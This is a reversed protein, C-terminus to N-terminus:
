SACGCPWQSSTSPTVRWCGRGFSRRSLGGLGANRRRGAAYRGNRSTNTRRRRRKRQHRRVRGAAHALDQQVHRRLHGEGQAEGGAHAGQAAQAGRARRPEEPGAQGGACFCCADPLGPPTLLLARRPTPRAGTGWLVHARARATDRLAGEHPGGEGGGHPWSACAGAWAEAAGEGVRWRHQAGAPARCSPQAWPWPACPRSRPRGLAGSHAHRRARASPHARGRVKDAADIAAKHDGLRLYCAAQNLHCQLRVKEAGQRQEGEALEDGADQVVAISKEYKPLARAYLGQAFLANGQEKKRLQLEVREAPELDWEDKAKEFEVLELRVKLAAGVAGADVARATALAATYGWDGPVELEVVAGKAMERVAADIAPIMVDDDLVWAAPEGGTTDELPAGGAAASALSVTLHTRARTRDAPREYSGDGAGVIKMRVAGDTKPVTKIEVWGVLEIRVVVAAGGGLASGDPKLAESSGAACTFEACENRNMGSVHYFVPPLGASQEDGIVFSLPTAADAAAGAPRSSELEAGGEAARVAYHVQAEWGEHPKAWGDGVTLKKKVLARAGGSLDEITHVHKAELACTITTDPPVGLAADGAPGYAAEPPVRLEYRSHLHVQKIVRELFPPFGARANADADGVVFPASSLSGDSSAVVTGDPLKVEYAVARARAARALSVRSRLARPRAGPNFRARAPRRAGAAASRRAAARM